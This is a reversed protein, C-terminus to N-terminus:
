TRSILIERPGDEKAPGIIGHEELQDILRAAEQYGINLQRQLFTLSARRTARVVDLARDYLSECGEKSNFQNHNM